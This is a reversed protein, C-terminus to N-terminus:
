HTKLGRSFGWPLYNMLLQDHGALALERISDRLIPHIVQEKYPLDTVRPCYFQRVAEGGSLEMGEPPAHEFLQEKAKGVSRRDMAM